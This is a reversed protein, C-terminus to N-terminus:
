AVFPISAPLMSSIMESVPTTEPALNRDGGARIVSTISSLAAFVHIKWGAFFTVLSVVPIYVFVRWSPVTLGYMLDRSLETFEGAENVVFLITARGDDPARRDQGPPASAESPM